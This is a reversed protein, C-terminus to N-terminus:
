YFWGCINIMTFTM